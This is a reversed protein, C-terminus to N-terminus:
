QIDLGALLKEGNLSKDLIDVTTGVNVYRPINGEENVNISEGNANEEDSGILKSTRDKRKLGYKKTQQLIKKESLRLQIALRANNTLDNNKLMAEDDKISVHYIKLLLDLRTDLFRWMKIENEISAVHDIDLLLAPNLDNESRLREKLEDEGMVIIKLFAVLMPPIPIETCFIHFTRSTSIHLMTLLEAKLAFLPDNKSIGIKISTNDHSNPLYVFGDHTLMEANNRAGYFIFIQDSIQFDKLALCYLSNTDVDFGTTIVGNCHNCMDWLPVLSTTRHTGDCAPIHNQRTMVTSVAWRYDDYLFREKLPVKTSNPLIQFLKYFYAYQRGINKYQKLIDNIYPKWFSDELQKECLLHVSLTINPMAQLVRDKSILSGLVSSEATEVTMMVKRPVTLLTDEKKFEKLAKLGYGESFKEISVHDVEVDNYKLWTLFEEIHEDRSTEIPIHDIQKERIIEVLKHLELFEEWQKTGSLPPGNAKELLNNALSMMERGYTDSYRIQKKRSKRGM